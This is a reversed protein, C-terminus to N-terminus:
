ELYTRGPTTVESKFAISDYMQRTADFVERIGAAGLVADALVSGEMSVHASFASAFAELTPRRILDFWDQGPSPTPAPHGSAPSQIATM